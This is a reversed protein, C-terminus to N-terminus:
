LTPRDSPRLDSPGRYFDAGVLLPMKSITDFIYQAPTMGSVDFGIFSVSQLGILATRGGFSVNNAGEPVYFIPSGSSGPMLNISLLWLRMPTTGGDKVCPTLIQEEPQTSIHGFQLIPYNRKVGSYGLLLGASIVSDTPLRQKTEQDTAFDSLPIAAIDYPEFVKPNLLFVAVDTSDDSSSWRPKGDQLIPAAVFAFGDGEKSPDYNKTNLRFYIMQPQSDPCHAWAPDVIHRATVLLLYGQSANSLLPVTVFFGTGMPRTPDAHGANDGAYIFVVSKKVVDTNINLTAKAPLATMAIVFAFVAYSRDM